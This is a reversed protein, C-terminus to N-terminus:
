KGSWQMFSRVREVAAVFEDWDDNRIWLENNVAIRKDTDDEPTKAEITYRHGDFDIYPIIAIKVSQSM